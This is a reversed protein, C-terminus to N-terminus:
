IPTDRPFPCGQGTELKQKLSLLFTAWKTSCHAFFAGSHRWGSHQFSVFTGDDTSELDFRVETGVWDPASELCHWVVTRPEITEVRMVTRHDGFAFTITEGPASTGSTSTTWWSALGTITSLAEHVQPTPEAIKVRHHIEAM